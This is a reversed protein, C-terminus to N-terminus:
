IWHAYWKNKETLKFHTQHLLIKWTSRKDYVRIVTKRDDLTDM